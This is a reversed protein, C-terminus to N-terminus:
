RRENSVAISRNLAPSVRPANDPKTAIVSECGVIDSAHSPLIAQPSWAMSTSSAACRLERESYRSVRRMPKTSPSRCARSSAGSYTVIGTHDREVIANAYALARIASRRNASVIATSSSGTTAPSAIAACHDCNM